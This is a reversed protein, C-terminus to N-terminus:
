SCAPMCQLLHANLGSQVLFDADSVLLGSEQEPQSFDLHGSMSASFVVLRNGDYVGYTVTITSPASEDSQRTHTYEHVLIGPWCDLGDIAASDLRVLVPQRQSGLRDRFATECIEKLAAYLDLTAPLTHGYPECPLGLLHADSQQSPHTAVYVLQEANQIFPEALVRMTVRHRVGNEPSRVHNEAAELNNWSTHDAAVWYDMGRRIPGLVPPHGDSGTRM